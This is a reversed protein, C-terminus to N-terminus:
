PNDPSARWGRSARSEAVSRIISQIAAPLMEVFARNERALEIQIKETNLRELHEAIARLIAHGAKRWAPNDHDKESVEPPRCDYPYLMELQKRAAGRSTAAIAPAEKPKRPAYVHIVPGNDAWSLTPLVPLLGPTVGRRKLEAVARAGENEGPGVLMNYTPCGIATDTLAILIDCYAAVYEGAAAYRRDRELKGAPGILISRHKARLADDDLDIENLLRVVFADEEPFDALFKSAAEDKTVGDQKFTSAELYQDKLFPLPALVRVPPDTERAAEVVLQDAGPALSSLLIIPTNKLALGPGLSVDGRDGPSARLWNFVRKVETKIRDREAPDLDMHGTVGVVFAPKFADGPACPSTVM